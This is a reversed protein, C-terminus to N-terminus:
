GAEHPAQEEAKGNTTSASPARDSSIAAGHEGSADREDAAACAVGFLLDRVADAAGDACQQRLRDLWAETPQPPAASPRRARLLRGAVPHGPTEDAALRRERLREGARLGTHQIWDAPDATPHYWRVLRHALRHINISRCTTPVYTGHAHRLAQLVSRAAAQPAIFWREMDPHTVPLPKEAQLRQVFQPVVSGRSGFVNCLRVVTPTLAPGEEMEARHVVQEAVAKTAGMVSVPAVAKDTSVLVFREVAAHARCAALWDATALVNNQAAAIPRAELFPVHKYAAAHLVTTPATRLVRTRDVGLRLDALRYSTAPTPGEAELRHQLQVLGHESTDVLVLRRLPLSALQHALAAGLSGGAGTVLVTQGKLAASPLPLPEQGGEAPFLDAMSPEPPSEGDFYPAEGDIRSASTDSM